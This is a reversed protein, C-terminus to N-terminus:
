KDQGDASTQRLYALERALQEPSMKRLISVIELEEASLDEAMRGPAKDDGLLESLKCQFIDTLGGLLNSRPLNKGACWDSVQAKSVNLRTVIDSQKLGDRRMLRKLNASFVACVEDQTM